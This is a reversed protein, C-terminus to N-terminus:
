WDLDMVWVDVESEGVSLYIENEGVTLSGLWFGQIDEKPEWVALSPDDFYTVLSPDGGTSPISWVGRRFGGVGPENDMAFFYITSGDPSFRPFRMWWLGPPAREEGRFGRDRERMLESVDPPDQRSNVEGDPSLWM